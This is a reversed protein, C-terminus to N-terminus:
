HERLRIESICGVLLDGPVRCSQERAAALINHGSDTYIGFLADPPSDSIPLRNAAARESQVYDDALAFKEVCPEIEARECWGLLADLVQEPYADDHDPM